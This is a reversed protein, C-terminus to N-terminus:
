VQRSGTGYTINRLCSYNLSNRAQNPNSVQYRKWVLDENGYRKCHFCQHSNVQGVTFPSYPPDYM